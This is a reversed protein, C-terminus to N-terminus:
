LPDALHAVVGVGEGRERQLGSCAAPLVIVAMINAQFVGLQVYLM